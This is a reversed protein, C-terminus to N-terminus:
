WVNNRHLSEPIFGSCVQTYDWFFLSLFLVVVVVVVVAATDKISLKRKSLKNM